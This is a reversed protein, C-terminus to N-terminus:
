RACVADSGSSGILGLGFVLISAALAVIAVCALMLGANVSCLVGLVSAAVFATAILPLVRIRERLRMTTGYLVTFSGLSSVIGLSLHGSLYFAAMPLANALAAQAGAAWRWPAHKLSFLNRWTGSWPSTMTFDSSATTM